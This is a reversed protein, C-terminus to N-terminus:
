PVFRRKRQQFRNVPIRSEEEKLRIEERTRMNRYERLFWISDRGMQGPQVTRDTRKGPDHSRAVIEGGLLQHVAGLAVLSEQRDLLETVVTLEVRAIYYLTDGVDAGGFSPIFLGQTATFEASPLHTFFQWGVIPVPILYDDEEYFVSLVERIDADTLTYWEKATSVTGVTGQALVWVNPWLDHLVTEIADDIEQIRFRPRKEIEAFQAHAAATTGNIARSITLENTSISTVRAEEGDDFAVTDAVSWNTGDEVDVTLAVNSIGGVDQVADRMPRLAPRASYVLRKIRLRLSAQTVAM